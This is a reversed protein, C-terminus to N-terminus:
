AKAKAKDKEADDKSKDKDGGKNANEAKPQSRRQREFMDMAGELKSEAAIARSIKEDIVTDMMRGNALIAENSRQISTAHVGHIESNMNALDNVLKRLREVEQDREIIALKQTDIVRDRSNIALRRDELAKEMERLFKSPNLPLQHAFRRKDIKTWIPWRLPFYPEYAAFVRESERELFVLAAEINEMTDCNMSTMRSLRAAARNGAASNILAKEPTGGFDKHVTAAKGKPFVGKLLLIVIVAGVGTLVWTIPDPQSFNLLYRDM